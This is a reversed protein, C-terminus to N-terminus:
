TSGDDAKSAEEEEDAAADDGDKGEYGDGDRTGLDFSELETTPLRGWSVSTIENRVDSEDGEDAYDGSGGPMEFHHEDDQCNNDIAINPETSGIEPEKPAVKFALYDLLITNDVRAAEVSIVVAPMPNEAQQIRRKVTALANYYVRQQYSEPLTHWTNMLLIYTDAIGPSTLLKLGMASCCSANKSGDNKHNFYKSCDPKDAKLKSKSAKPHIGKNKRWEQFTHRLATCTFM